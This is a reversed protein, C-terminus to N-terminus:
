TCIYERKLNEAIDCLTNWVVRVCPNKEDKVCVAMFRLKPSFDRVPIARCETGKLFHAIRDTTVGIGEGRAVAMMIDYASAGMSVVTPSFGFHHCSEVFRQYLGPVHSHTWTIMPEGQLDRMSISDKHAFPHDNNVYICLRMDAIELVEINENEKVETDLRFYIDPNKKVQGNPGRTKSREQAEIHIYPDRKKVERVLNFM